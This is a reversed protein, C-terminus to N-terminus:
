ARKFSRVIIACRDIGKEILMDVVDRCSDGLERLQLSLKIRDPSVTRPLARSLMASYQRIQVLARDPEAQSARM